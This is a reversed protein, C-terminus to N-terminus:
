SNGLIITDPVMKESEGMFADAPFVTVTFISRRDAQDM